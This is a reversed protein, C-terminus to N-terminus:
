SLDMTNTLATGFLRRASKEAAQPRVSSYKKSSPSCMPSVKKPSQHCARCAALYMEPGGIVEVQFVVVNTVNIFGSLVSVLKINECFLFGLENLCKLM